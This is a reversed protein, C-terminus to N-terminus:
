RRESVYHFRSEGDLLGNSKRLRRCHLLWSRGCATELLDLLAKFIHKRMARPISSYAFPLSHFGAVLARSIIDGDRWKVHGREPWLSLLSHTHFPSLSAWIELKLWFSLILTGTAYIGKWVCCSGGRASSRDGWQDEMSWDEDSSQGRMDAFPAADRILKLLKM